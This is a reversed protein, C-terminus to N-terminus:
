WQALGLAQQTRDDVQKTDIDGDRIMRGQAAATTAQGSQQMPAVWCPWQMKKDVACTQLNVAFTFPVVLLVADPRATPPALKVEADVGGCM